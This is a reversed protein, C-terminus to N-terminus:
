NITRRYNPEAYEVFEAQQLQEIMEEVSGDGEIKMLYLDPLLNEKLTELGLQAQIKVIAEPPTEAKFKVLVEGAAYASDDGPQSAPVPQPAPLPEAEGGRTTCCAAFLFCIGIVVSVGLVVHLNSKM